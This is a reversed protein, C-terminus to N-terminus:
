ASDKLALLGRCFSWLYQSRKRKVIISFRHRANADCAHCVHLASMYVEIVAGERGLVPYGASHRRLQNHAQRHQRQPCFMVVVASCPM